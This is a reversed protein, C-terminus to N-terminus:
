APKPINPRLLLEIDRGASFAQAAGPHRSASRGRKSFWVGETLLAYEGRPRKHTYKGLNLYHSIIRVITLADKSPLKSMFNDFEMRWPDDPKAEKWQHGKKVIDHVLENIQLSCLINSPCGPIRSRSSTVCGTAM